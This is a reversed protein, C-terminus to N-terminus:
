LLNLPAWCKYTPCNVPCQSYPDIELEAQSSLAQIPRSDIFCARRRNSLAIQPAMYYIVLAIGWMIRGTSVCVNSIADMM